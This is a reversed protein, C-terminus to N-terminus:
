IGVLGFIKCYVCLIIYWCYVFKEGVSYCIISYLCWMMCKWFCKVRVLLKDFNKISFLFVLFMYDMEIYFKFGIFYDVFCENVWIIGLIEKVNM